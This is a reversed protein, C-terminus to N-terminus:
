CPVVREMYRDPHWMPPQVAGFDRRYGILDDPLEDCYPLPRMLVQGADTPAYWSYDTGISEISWRAIRGYGFSRKKGISVVDQLVDLVGDPDGVGFWVVRGVARIRLPLRYSKFKANGTAVMLRRKPELLSAYEVALRKAFHQVTEHGPAPVPDSCCPVLLGGFMRRAIPVGILGYQPARQHRQLANAMGTRMAMEYELMGELMPMDGAIPSSMHATLQFTTGSTDTKRTGM